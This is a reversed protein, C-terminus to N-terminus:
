HRFRKEGVVEQKRNWWGGGLAVFLATTDQFRQARAQLYAISAQHYQADAVLVQLYNALGAQYNAQVLKLAGAAAEMARSQADVTEADHQLARLTDAVQEFAGLVSQRYNALAAQYAEIAAKRQHSLTGGRFLPAAVNAGLSWVNGGSQLLASGVNNAQGFSGSLTFSPFTAATAVGINASASHLQAESVLIDPRQRVLESPLTIPLDAPLMLEALDIEPLARDAPLHGTLSALLDEAEDMRQRLPPLTAETAALQSQVSLLTSYPVTGATVQAQTVHLQDKELEILQETARIQAAYAARAIVTNVINGSLTLYTGLTAYRQYDVQAALGEVARREGGFVDLAYSVTANLTFLNFVSSTSSQGVSAGSFKERSAAAGANIQPYFVGYGARLNEQSQRLNAQAAQLNPNDAIAEKVLADIQNSNFLHWWDAAIDAGPEFRQVQGDAALTSAPMEQHTYREGEPPKPRVYDPGVTCGSVLLLALLGVYMATLLGAVERTRTDIRACHM